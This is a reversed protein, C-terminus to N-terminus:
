IFFFFFFFRFLFINPLGERVCKFVFLCVFLCVFVFGLCVSNVYLWLVWFILASFFRCGRGLKSGGGAFGRVM